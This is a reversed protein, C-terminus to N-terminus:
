TKTCTLSKLSYFKVAIHKSNYKYYIEKSYNNFHEIHKPHIQKTHEPDDTSSYPGSFNVKTAVKFPDKYNEKSWRKSFQKYM